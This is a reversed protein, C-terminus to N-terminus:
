DRLEREAELWFSVGDGPPRGAAEWRAYARERIAQERVRDKVTPEDALPPTERGAPAPASQYNWDSVAETRFYKQGPRDNQHM